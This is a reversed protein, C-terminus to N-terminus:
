LNNTYFAPHGISSLHVITLMVILQPYISWCLGDSCHYDPCLLSVTLPAPNLASTPSSSASSPLVVMMIIFQTSPLLVM